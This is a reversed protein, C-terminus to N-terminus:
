ALGPRQYQSDPGFPDDDRGFRQNIRGIWSAREQTRGATTRPTSYPTGELHGRKLDVPLHNQRQTGGCESRVPLAVRQPGGRARPACRPEVGGGATSHLQMALREGVRYGSSAMSGRQMQCEMSFWARRIVVGSRPGPVSGRPLDDALDHLGSSRRRLFGAREHHNVGSAALGSRQPSSADLVLHLLRRDPLEAAAPRNELREDEIVVVGPGVAQDAAALHDDGDLGQAPGPREGYKRVSSRRSSAPSPNVSATITWGSRTSPFGGAAAPEEEPGVPM